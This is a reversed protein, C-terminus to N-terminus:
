RFLSLREACIATIIILPVVAVLTMATLVLNRPDSFGVLTYQLVLMLVVWFVASGIFRVQQAKSKSSM